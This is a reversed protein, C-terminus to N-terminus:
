LSPIGVGLALRFQEFKKRGLPKTMVDALNYKSAIKRIYLKKNEVFQRVIFYDVELHKTQRSLKRNKAIQVAASNDCFMTTPRKKDLLELEKLLYRLWVGEQTGSAVAILEAEASSKATTSQKRSSWAIAGGHMTYVM